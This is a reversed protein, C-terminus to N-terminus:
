AKRENLAIQTIAVIWAVMAEAWSAAPSMWTPDTHLPLFLARGTGYQLGGIISPLLLYLLLLVALALLDGGRRRALMNMLVVIGLDRVLFGLISTVLAADAPFGPEMTNSLILHAVLVGGLILTAFVSMMWCQLRSLASGIRFHGIESGFWRFAVRDKAELFINIYTLGACVLVVLYLRRSDADAIPLQKSVWADFGGVYGAVFTLFALWVLPGNVQKLERRMLRYSGLLIWGAFVALSVLLFVETPLSANWWAIHDSRLFGGLVPGNPDAIAWVALGVALGVIQYIFVEYQARGHRRVVGILSALLAAAQAIVGLAIFYFLDAVAVAPGSRNFADAVIVVLCIAGGVWNFITSGFLKGWMLTSASLSSLRQFDWTRDRIEGVVSRAANRAGWFVVVIYYLWRAATGPGNMGDTVAAAFFALSLLAVLVVLRLPTLELWVNRRFEPNM